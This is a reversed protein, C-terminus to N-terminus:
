LLERSAVCGAAAPLVQITVSRLLRSLIKVLVSEALCDRHPQAQYGGSFKLRIKIMTEKLISGNGKGM